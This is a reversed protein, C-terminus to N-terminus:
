GEPPTERMLENVLRFEAELRVRDDAPLTSEELRRAITQSLASLEAFSLDRLRQEDEVDLKDEEAPEDSPEVNEEEIAPEQAESEESNAPRRERPSPPAEGDPEPRLEVLQTASIRQFVLRGDIESRLVMTREGGEEGLYTIEGTMAREQGGDNFLVAVREGKSPNWPRNGPTATAVTGPPTEGRETEAPDKGPSEPTSSAVTEANSSSPRPRAPDLPQIERGLLRDLDDDEFPTFVSEPDDDLFSVEYEGGRHGLKVRTPGLIRIVRVGEAERGAPIKLNGEFFVLPGAVGLPDPGAYTTPPGTDVKPPPTTRRPPKPPEPRPPAPRTRPRSPVVFPSRGQFRRASIEAQRDHAEELSAFVDDPDGNWGPASVAGVLSPLGVLVAVLVIAISVASTILPGSWRISGIKGPGDNM